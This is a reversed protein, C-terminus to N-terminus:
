SAPTCRTGRPSSSWRPWSERTGRTAGDPTRAHDRGAIRDLDVAVAEASPYRDAPSKQLCRRVVDDLAPTVGARLDEMPPPDQNLVSYIVAPDHSGEFPLRGTVMEYLLVGLAWVDSREDAEGGSLLEPSMHTLTGLSSGDRTLRSPAGLKALGFDLIKVQRDETVFVNGPKIDRHIIGHAHAKSLGRAVQRAIDVAVEIPLPGEDVIEQLTRGAYCTMVIFLQGEDSEDIEHITCINPHDLASAARAERIFREKADPARTLGPPLFKLAVTRELRTDEARYVVGMGGEGLKEVIRYHSVTKGIMM